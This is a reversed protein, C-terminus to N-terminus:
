ASKGSLYAMFQELTGDYCSLDPTGCGAVEISVGDYKDALRHHSGDSFQFLDWWVQGPDADAVAAPKPATFPDYDYAAVWIPRQVLYAVLPDSADHLDSMMQSLGGYLGARFGAAEGAQEWQVAKDLGALGGSKERDAWVFVSRPDIGVSTCAQTIRKQGDAWQVDGDEANTIYQYVLVILGKTHAEVFRSQFAGDPANVGTGDKLIVVELPPITPTGARAATLDARDGHYVDMIRTCLPRPLALKSM